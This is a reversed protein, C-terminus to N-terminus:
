FVSQGRSGAFVPEVGRSVDIQLLLATKSTYQIFSTLLIPYVNLVLGLRSGPRTRMGAEALPLDLIPARCPGQDEPEARLGISCRAAGGIKIWELQRTECVHNQIFNRSFGEVM